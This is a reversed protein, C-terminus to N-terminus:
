VVRVSHFYSGAIKKLLEEQSHHYVTIFCTAPGSSKLIDLDTIITDQSFKKNPFIQNMEYLIGKSGVPWILMENLLSVEKFVSLPAVRDLQEIVENGVLPIGIVAYKLQEHFELEATIGNTKKGLVMLGLASQLLPFNSETSGSISVDKLCLEEIGKQIGFVLEDWPENGCFNHLVVSIPDGGAAICEMAAVRFSYYAVMEYPVHVFDNEKMGIAGSNDSAIILSNEGHFPITITDRM